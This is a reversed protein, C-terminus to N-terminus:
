KPESPIVFARATCRSMTEPAPYTQEGIVYFRVIYPHGAEFHRSDMAVPFSVRENAIDDNEDFYFALSQILAVDAGSGSVLPELDLPCAALFCDLDAIQPDPYEGAIWTSGFNSLVARGRIEKERMRWTDIQQGCWVRQRIQRHHDNLSQFLESVPRHASGVLILANHIKRDDELKNEVITTVLVHADGPKPPDISLDLTLYRSESKAVSELVKVLSLLGGLAALVTWRSVVRSKFEDWLGTRSADPAKSLTVSFPAGNATGVAKYDDGKPIGGSPAVFVIVTLLMLAIAPWKLISSAILGAKWEIWELRAAFREQRTPSHTVKHAFRCCTETCERDGLTGGAEKTITTPAPNTM